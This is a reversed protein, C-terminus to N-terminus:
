KREHFVIQFAFVMKLSYREEGNKWGGEEEVANLIGKAGGKKPRPFLSVKPLYTLTFEVRDFRISFTLFRSVRGRHIKVENRSIRECREQEVCDFVFRKSTFRREREKGGRKKKRLVSIWDSESNWKSWCKEKNPIREWKLFFFFSLFYYCFSRFEELSFFISKEESKERLWNIIKKLICTSEKSNIM